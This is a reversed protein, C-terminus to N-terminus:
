EERCSTREVATTARASKTAESAPSRRPRSEIWKIVGEMNIWLRKDPSRRYEKGERWTGGKIKNQVACLTLGLLEAAKAPRLYKPLCTTIMPELPRRQEEPKQPNVIPEEDNNGVLM